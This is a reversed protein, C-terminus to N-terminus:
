PSAAATLSSGKRYSLLTRGDGGLPLHFRDTSPGTWGPLTQEQATTGAMVV